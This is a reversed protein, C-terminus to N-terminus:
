LFLSFWKYCSNFFLLVEAEFVSLLKLSHATNELTINKSYKSALIYMEAIFTM